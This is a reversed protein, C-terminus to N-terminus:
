STHNICVHKELYYELQFHWEWILYLLFLNNFEFIFFPKKLKNKIFISHMFMKLINEM